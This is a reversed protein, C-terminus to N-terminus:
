QDGHADAAAVLSEAEAASVDHRERLEVIIESRSLIPSAPGDTTNSWIVFCDPRLRAVLEGM